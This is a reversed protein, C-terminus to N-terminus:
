PLAVIADIEVAAALPLAAVGITTRAPVEGGTFFEAYAANIDAFDSLRTTYIGVRVARSLTTGAEACVASLNNLCQRVQEAIGSAEIRASAPDVPLAGSCYLMGAHAVAQVYPGIAAPASASSIRTLESM